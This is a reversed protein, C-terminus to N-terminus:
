KQIILSLSFLFYTRQNIKTLGNKQKFAICLFYSLRDLDKMNFRDNLMQKTDNLLSEDSAAVTLNDVWVVIVVMDKDVQRIYVCHDTPSQIFTNDQLYSHLLSNWNRGSHKLDYLSKNLKIVLRSRGWQVEFGAAKEMYSKCDIPVNLYVTKADMYHLILDQQAAVQELSRISTITPTTAFTETYDIGEIQSLGKAVYRAKYSELGYSSEKM